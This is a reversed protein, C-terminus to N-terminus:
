STARRVPEKREVRCSSNLRMAPCKTRLVSVSKELTEDGPMKTRTGELRPIEGVHPVEVVWIPAILVDTACGRCTYLFNPRPFFFFVSHTSGLNRSKLPM